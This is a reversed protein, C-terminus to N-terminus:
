GETKSVKFCELIHMLTWPKDANFEFIAHASISRNQLSQEREMVMLPASQYETTMRASEFNDDNTGTYHVPAHM